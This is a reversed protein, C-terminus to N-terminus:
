ARRKRLLEQPVTTGSLQPHSVSWLWQLEFADRLSEGFEDVPRALSLEHSLMAKEGASRLSVRAAASMVKAESAQGGASALSCLRIGSRCGGSM